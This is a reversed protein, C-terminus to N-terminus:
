SDTTGKQILNTFYKNSIKKKKEKSTIIIQKIVHVRKIKLIYIIRFFDYLYSFNM